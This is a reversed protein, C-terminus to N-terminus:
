KNQSEEKKMEFNLYPGIKGVWDKKFIKIKLLDDVQLYPGHQLRYAVLVKAEQYSIYPHKALEEVAVTNIEIRRPAVRDFDFYEWIVPITEPRLGFVEHLQEVKIFGGLSERHKIIRGATLAGIGPVIQLVVSDVESFPLRKIRDSVKSSHSRSLTDEPNFTPLPSALLQVGARELSDVQNLYQQYHKEANRDKAWALVQSAGVLLLLCPILLLFGRSEKASFGLHTKFWFYLRQRM